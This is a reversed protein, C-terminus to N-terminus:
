FATINLEHKIERNSPLPDNRIVKFHPTENLLDFMIEGDIDVFDGLNQISAIRTNAM